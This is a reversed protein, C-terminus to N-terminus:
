VDSPAARPFEISSPLSSVGSGFLMAAQARSAPLSRGYPTDADRVIRHKRTRVASSHVHAIATYRSTNVLSFGSAILRGAIANDCGIMGIQIPRPFVIARLRENPADFIWADQSSTQNHHIQAMKCGKTQNYRSCALIMNEPIVASRIRMCSPHDFAIDANSLVFRAPGESHAFEFADAYTLRRGTVIQRVKAPLEGKLEHENLLVVEDFVGCLANRELCEEFERRRLGEFTPLSAPCDMLLVVKDVDHRARKMDRKEDDATTRKHEDPPPTSAAADAASM